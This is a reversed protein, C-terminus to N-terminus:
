DLTEGFNEFLNSKSSEYLQFLLLGLHILKLYTTTKSVAKHAFYLHSFIATNYIQAILTCIFFKSACETHWKNNREGTDINATSGMLLFSGMMGIVLMITPKYKHINIVNEVGVTQIYFHNAFWGLVMLVSGSITATRFFVYEPYHDAIDSIWAHPFPKDHGYYQSIWYILVLTLITFIASVQFYIGAPYEGLIM